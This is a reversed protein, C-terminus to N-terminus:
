KEKVDKLMPYDTLELNGRHITFWSFKGKNNKYYEYIDKEVHGYPLAYWNDFVSLLDSNVACSYFLLSNIKLYRFDNSKFNELGCDKVLRYVFYEFYEVKSESKSPPQKYSELWSRILSM